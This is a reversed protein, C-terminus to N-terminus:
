PRLGRLDLLAHVVEMPHQASALAADVTQLLAAYRAPLAADCLPALLGLAQVATHRARDDLEDAAAALRLVRLAPPAGPGLRGAIPGANAQLARLLLTHDHAALLPEDLTIE